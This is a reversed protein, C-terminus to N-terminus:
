RQAVLSANPVYKCELSTVRGSNLNYQTDQVKGPTGVEPHFPTYTVSLSGVLHEKSMENSEERRQWGQGPSASSNTEKSYDYFYLPQKQLASM